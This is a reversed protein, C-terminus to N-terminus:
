QQQQDDTTEAGPANAPGDSAFFEGLITAAAIADQRARRKMRTLQGALFKDAAFSSLREDWIRVDLGSAQALEGALVRSEKAQNGETGDMNIPWGVVIGQVEYERALECILQICKTPPSSPISKIPCAISDADSGVAVGMRKSGPDICLWRGM